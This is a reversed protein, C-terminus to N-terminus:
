LWPPSVVRACVLLGVAGLIECIGTFTVMFEPNPVSPSVMAVM